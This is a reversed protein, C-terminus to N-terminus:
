ATVGALLDDAATEGTAPQGRVANRYALAAAELEQAEDWGPDIEAAFLDGIVLAARELRARAEAATRPENM